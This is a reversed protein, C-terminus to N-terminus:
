EKPTWTVKDDVYDIMENVSLGGKAGVIGRVRELFVESAARGQYSIGKLIQTIQGNNKEEAELFKQLLNLNAQENLLRPNDLFNKINGALNAAGLKSFSFHRSEADEGGWSLRNLKMLDRFNKKRMEAHAVAAHGDESLWERKGHKMTTMRSTEWHGKSENIFSVEDAQALAEQESFGGKKQMIEKTFNKFGHYDSSYGFANLLENDNYDAALKKQIAAMMAKNKNAMADKFMDILVDDNEVGDLKKAEESQLGRWASQAEYDIPPRRRAALKQYSEQEKRAEAAEGAYSKRQGETLTPTGKQYELYRQEADLKALAKEKKDEPMEKDNGVRIREAEVRALNRQRHEEAQSTVDRNKLAAADAPTMRSIRDRKEVLSKNTIIKNNRLELQEAQIGKVQELEDSNLDADSRGKRIEKEQKELDAMGVIPANIQTNLDANINDIAQQVKATDSVDVDKLALHVSLEAEEQALSDLESQIRAKENPDDAKDYQEQLSKKQEAMENLGNQSVYSDVTGGNKSLKELAAAESSVQLAQKDAAAARAMGRKGMNPGLMKLTGRVAGFENFMMSSRSTAAALRAHVGTGGASALVQGAKNVGTQYQRKKRQERGSKIGEWVRKVNLDIGTKEQLKDSAAKAGGWAAKFPLKAAGKALGVGAGVVKSGANAIHSSVNSAAKGAAGGAETALQLGLMLLAIAIIFTFMDDYSSMQSAALSYNADNATIQSSSDKGQFDAAMSNNNNSSQSLLTLSLWMFFAMAIGITLQKWFKEWFQSSYKSMAPFAASLFAIPSLILLMWLYIIRQLLLVMYVLVTFLAIVALIIALVLSAIIKGPSLLSDNAKPQLDQFKVWKRIGFASEMNVMAAERFANVFTLMLVQAFDIMFGLITKSFNILVAMVLLKLLTSKYNYTSIHLITSFAIILLFVVFFMNCVDRVLPWGINVADANVFNNYQFFVVMYDIVLLLLGALLGLIWLLLNSIGAALWQTVTTGSFSETKFSDSVGQVQALLHNNFALFVGALVLLSIVFVFTKKAFLSKIKTTLTM